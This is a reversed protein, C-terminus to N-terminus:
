IMEGRTATVCLEPARSLPKLKKGDGARASFFFGGCLTQKGDDPPSSYFRVFCASANNADTM